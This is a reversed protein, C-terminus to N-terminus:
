LDVENPDPIQLNLYEAAWQQIREKVRNFDNTKIDGLDSMSRAVAVSHGDPSWSMSHIRGGLHSLQVQPEGNAPWLWVEDTGSKKSVYSIYRGDPSWLPIRSALFEVDGLPGSLRTPFGGQPSIQWLAPAGGITSVFAIQDGQPSWQPAEPALLSRISLLQDLSIGDM